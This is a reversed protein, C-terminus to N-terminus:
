TEDVFYNKFLQSLKQRLEVLCTFYPDIAALMDCLDLYKNDFGKLWARFDDIREERRGRAEIFHYFISGVSFTAILNALEKPEKLHRYTDFVVIQARKFHFQQDPKVWPIYPVEYLREDIVEILEQRLEETEKFRTPDIVALREALVYDRLNHYAWAAFDNHFEPEEFRPLLLGGFFHYIISGPHITILRDRFEKLNQAQIGTAIAILACDKIAFPKVKNGM